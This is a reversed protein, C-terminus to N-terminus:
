KDAFCVNQDMLTYVLGIIHQAGRTETGSGFGLDPSSVLAGWFHTENHDTSSGVFCLVPDKKWHDEFSSCM